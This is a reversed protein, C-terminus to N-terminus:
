LLDRCRAPPFTLYLVFTIPFIERWTGWLGSYVTYVCLLSLCKSEHWRAVSWNSRSVWRSGNGDPTLEYLRCRRDTRGTGDSVRRQNRCPDSRAPSLRDLRLFGTPHYLLCLVLRREYREQPEAHHIIWRLCTIQILCLRHMERPWPHGKHFSFSHTVQAHMIIRYQVPRM